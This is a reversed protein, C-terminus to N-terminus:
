RKPYAEPWGEPQRKFRKYEWQYQAPHRRVIAEIAQNMAAASVEPNPDYIGEPAAEFVVDFGGPVREAVVFAAKAKSEMILKHALTMTLAPRGFFPAYVGGRKSPVQDPLIAISRGEDAERRVRRLGSVSIPAVDIGARERFHTILSDLGPQRPLDYLALADLRQGFYQALLEWNGHHPLLLILPERENSARVFEDAGEVSHVIEEIRTLPWYWVAGTEFAIKVTEIYSDRALERRADEALDPFCININTLTTRAGRPKFLWALRAFTTALGRAASLPLWSLLTLVAAILRGLM